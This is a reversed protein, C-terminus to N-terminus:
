RAAAPAKSASRDGTVIQAQAFAEIVAPSFVPLDEPSRSTVLNGDVVLAEDIWDAGANRLDTRLSAWSTLRRGEAWGAEIILIPGHCIAAVPKGTAFFHRVFAVAEPLLRLKDPSIVGGPLLLADFHSPEADSLALDVPWREGWDTYRWARVTGQEPSVVAVEAGAAKLAERPQTLEVQEFGEAVLAAVKLGSLKGAAANDSADTDAM